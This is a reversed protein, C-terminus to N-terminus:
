MMEDELKLTKVINHNRSKRSRECKCCKLRPHRSHCLLFYRLPREKCCGPLVCKRFRPLYKVLCFIYYAIFRRWFIGVFGMGKKILLQLEFMGPFYSAKEWNEQAPFSGAHGWRVVIWVHSGLWDLAAMPALRAWCPIRLLKVGPSWYVCSGPERSKLAQCRFVEMPPGSRGLSLPPSCGVQLWGPEAGPGIVLWLPTMSGAGASRATGCFAAKVVSEVPSSCLKSCLEWLRYSDWHSNAINGLHIQSAGKEGFAILM